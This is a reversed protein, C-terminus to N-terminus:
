LDTIKLQSVEHM